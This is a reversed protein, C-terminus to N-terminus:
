TPQMTSTSCNMRRRKLQHPASSEDHTKRKANTDSASQLVKIEEKIKCIDATHAKVTQQLGTFEMSVIEIVPDLNDIDIYTLKSNITQFNEILLKMNNLVQELDAKLLSVERQLTDKEERLRTFENSRKKTTNELSQLRDHFEPNSNRKM